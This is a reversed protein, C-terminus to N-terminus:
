VEIRLGDKALVVEGGYVRRAPSLCDARDAAPYFHTLLLKKAKAAAAVGAADAPTMHGESPAGEPFSSELVLLDARSALGVLSDCVVSDGGYVVSREECDVRFALSERTHGSLGAALTLGGIRLAQEGIEVIELRLGPPRIWDGYIGELHAMHKKLGSPGILLMRGDCGFEPNRLAFLLPVLDATHDPHFHSLALVDIRRVDVGEMWLRRVSGSGLDFVISTGGATLHCCPSGRDISPVATGSGIVTLIM